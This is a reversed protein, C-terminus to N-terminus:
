TPLGGYLRRGSGALEGRQRSSESASSFSSSIFTLQCVEQKHSIWTTFQLTNVKQLPVIEKEPSVMSLIDNTIIPPAGPEPSPTTGFELSPLLYDSQNEKGCNITCVLNQRSQHCTYM